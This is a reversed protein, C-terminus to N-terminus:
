KSVEEKTKYPPGMGRSIRVACARPLPNRKNHSAFNYGTNKRKERSKKTEQYSGVNTKREWLAVRKRTKEHRTKGQEGVASTTSGGSEQKKGQEILVIM